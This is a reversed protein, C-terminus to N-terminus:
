RRAAPAAKSASAARTQIMDAKAVSLIDHLEGELRPVYFGKKEKEVKMEGQEMSENAVIAVKKEEEEAKKQKDTAIALRRLVSGDIKKVQCPGEDQLVAPAGHVTPVRDDIGSGNVTSAVTWHGSRPGNYAEYTIPSGGSAPEAIRPQPSQIPFFSDDIASADDTHDM